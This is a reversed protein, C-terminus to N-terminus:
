SPRVSPIEWLSWRWINDCQFNPSVCTFESPVCVCETWLVLWNVRSNFIFCAAYKGKGKGKGEARVSDFAVSAM